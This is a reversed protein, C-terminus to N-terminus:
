RAPPRYSGVARGHGDYAVAHRVEIAAGTARALSVAQISWAIGARRRLRRPLSHARARLVEGDRLTTVARQARPDVLLIVARLGSLGAGGSSVTPIV